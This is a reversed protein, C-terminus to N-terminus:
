GADPASPIQPIGNPSGIPSGLPSGMPAGGQRRERFRQMRGKREEKQQRTLENYQAVQAPSLVGEVRAQFENRMEKMQGRLEQFRAFSEGGAGGPPLAGGLGGGEGSAESQVQAGRNRKRGFGGGQPNTQRLAKLEQRMSQGKQRFENQIEEIQQKQKDSLDPIQGLVNFHHGGAKGGGRNGREGRKRGTKRGRKM